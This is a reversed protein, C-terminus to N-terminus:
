LSQWDIAHAEHCPSSRQHHLEPHTFSLLELYTSDAM